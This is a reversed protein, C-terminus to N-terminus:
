QIPNNLSYPILEHHGLKKTGLPNAGLVLCHGKNTSIHRNVM